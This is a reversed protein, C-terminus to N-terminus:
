RADTPEHRQVSETDQNKVIRHTREWSSPQQASPLLQTAGGAALRANIESSCMNQQINISRASRSSHHQIAKRPPLYGRIPMDSCFPINPLIFTDIFPSAPEHSSSAYGILKEASQERPLLRTEWDVPLPSCLPFIHYQHPASHIRMHRVMMEM